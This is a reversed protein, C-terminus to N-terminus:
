DIDRRIQRLYDEAEEALDTALGSPDTSVYEELGIAEDEEEESEFRSLYSFVEDDSEMIKTIADEYEAVAADFEGADLDLKFLESVKAVLSQAAKPSPTQALYHPVSSWAIALPIGLNELEVQVSGMITTPGTYHDPMLGLSRMLRPTNSRVTTEAAVNHPAHVIQGGLFIVEDPNVSRIAEVVLASYSRWGVRPELFSMLAVERGSPKDRGLYIDITPWDLIRQSGSQSVFPRAEDYSVYADVDIEAIKEADFADRMFSLALFGSRAPDDEGDFVAILLPRVPKPPRRAFWRIEAM